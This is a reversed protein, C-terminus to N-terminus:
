RNTDFLKAPQRIGGILDLDNKELNFRYVGALEVMLNTFDVDITLSEPTTQQDGLNLYSVDTLFGWGSNHMGEFHVTFIKELKSTIKNFDAQISATNGMVTMDGDMNIAWLYLPALNFEWTDKDQGFATSTLLFVIVASVFVSMPKFKLM